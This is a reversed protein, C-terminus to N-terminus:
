FRSDQNGKLGSLLQRWCIKLRIPILLQTSSTYTENTDTTQHWLQELQLLWETGGCWLHQKIWSPVVSLAPSLFWNVPRCSRTRAQHGPTAMMGGRQNTNIFTVRCSLCPSDRSPLCQSTLRRQKWRSPSPHSTNISRSRYDRHTTPPPSGPPAPRPRGVTHLRIWVPATLSSRRSQGERVPTWCPTLLRTTQLYTSRLRVQALVSMTVIFSFM